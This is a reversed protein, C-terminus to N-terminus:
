NKLWNILEPDFRNPSETQPNHGDEPLLIYSFDPLGHILAEWTVHPIGYDLKGLILLTPMDIRELIARAQARSPLARPLAAFAPGTEVGEWLQTSDYTPDAWWRAANAIYNIAFRRSPPASAIASEMSRRNTVHREKRETSAQDNWFGTRIEDFESGGYPVGAVLVLRSTRDPFKVAYALAIQAQISHGLVTWKDIGLHSRLAEVDDAFTEFTLSELAKESPQYSPIFHRSDVFILDFHERLGTSFARPYYMSSGIVVIPSGKGERVYRFDIDNSSFIAVEAHVGMSFGLALQLVLVLLLTRDKMSGGAHILRRVKLYLVWNDGFLGASPWDMSCIRVDAEPRNLVKAKAEFYIM